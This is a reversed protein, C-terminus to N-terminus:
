LLRAPASLKAAYIRQRPLHRSRARRANAARAPMAPNTASATAQAATAATGFPASEDFGGARRPRRVPGDPASGRPRGSAM